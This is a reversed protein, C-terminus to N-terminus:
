LSSKKSCLASPNECDRHSVNANIADSATEIMPHSLSSVRICALLVLQSEQLKKHCFSSCLHHIYTTILSCSPGQIPPWAIIPMFLSLCQFSDQVCFICFIYFVVLKFVIHMIHMIHLIHLIHMIHLNNFCHTLFYASYACYTM